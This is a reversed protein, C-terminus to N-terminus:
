ASLAVLRELLKEEEEMSAMRRSYDIWDDDYTLSSSSTQLALANRWTPSFRCIGCSFHCEKTLSDLSPLKLRISLKETEIFYITFAFSNNMISDSVIQRLHFEVSHQSDNFTLYYLRSHSEDDNVPHSNHPIPDCLSPKELNSLIRSYTKLSCLFRRKTGHDKGSPDWFQKLLSLQRVFSKISDTEDNNRLCCVLKQFVVVHVREISISSRFFKFTKLDWDLTSLRACTM